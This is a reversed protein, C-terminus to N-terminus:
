TQLHNFYREHRDVDFTVVVHRHRVVHPAPRTMLNDSQTAARATGWDIGLVGDGYVGVGVGCVYVEPGVFSSAASAEM